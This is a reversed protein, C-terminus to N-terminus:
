LELAPEELKEAPAQYYTRQELGQAVLPWPMQRLRTNFAGVLDNYRKRELAIRNKTGAIEFSLDRFQQDAKLEPYSEALSLARTVVGDVNGTLVVELNNGPGPPRTLMVRGHTTFGGHKTLLEQLQTRDTLGNRGSSDSIDTVPARESQRRASDVLYVLAVAGLVCLSTALLWPSRQSNM